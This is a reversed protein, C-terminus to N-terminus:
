ALQSNGKDCITFNLKSGLGAITYIEDIQLFFFIDAARERVCTQSLRLRSHM